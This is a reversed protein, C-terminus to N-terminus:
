FMTQLISADRRCVRAWFSEEDIPYGDTVDEPRLVDFIDHENQGDVATPLQIKGEKTRTFYFTILSTVVSIVLVIAIPLQFRPMASNKKNFLALIFFTSRFYHNGLSLVTGISGFLNSVATVRAYCTVQKCKMTVLVELENVASEAAAAKIEIEARTFRPTIRM